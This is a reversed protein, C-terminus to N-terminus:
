RAGIERFYFLEPDGDDLGEVTGAYRFGESVLLNQMPLNSRNTSSWLKPGATRAQLHRLLARGVGSRRASRAVMLMAVTPQRFFSDDLVAYGVPRSNAEAVFCNGEAIWRGIDDIRSLDHSAHSDLAILAEADAPVVPRVLLSM